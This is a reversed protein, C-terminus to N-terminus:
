GHPGAELLAIGWGALSHGSDPRTQCMREFLTHRRATPEGGPGSDGRCVVGVPRGRGTPSRSWNRRHRCRTISMGWIFCDDPAELETGLLRRLLPVARDRRGTLVYVDALRRAALALGPRDLPRRAARAGRRDLGGVGFADRRSGIRRFARLEATGERVQEYHLLAREPAGGRAAGEAAVMWGLTATGNGRWRCRWVSRKRTASTSWLRAHTWCGNRRDVTRVRGWFLIGGRRGCGDRRSRDLTDHRHVPRIRYQRESVM